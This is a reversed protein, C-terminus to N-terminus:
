QRERRELRILTERERATLITRRKRLWALRSKEDETLLPAPLGPVKDAPWHADSV